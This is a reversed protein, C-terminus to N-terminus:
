REVYQLTFRLRKAEQRGEVHHTPCKLYICSCGTDAERDPRVSEAYLSSSM